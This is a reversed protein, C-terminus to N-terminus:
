SSLPSLPLPSPSMSGNLETLVAITSGKFCVRHGAEVTQDCDIACMM